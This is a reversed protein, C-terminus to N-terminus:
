LNSYFKDFYEKLIDYVEPMTKKLVPNGTFYTSNGHAFLEKYAGNNTNYYELTHGRGANGYSLAGLIDLSVATQEGLDWDQEKISKKVQDNLAAAIDKM